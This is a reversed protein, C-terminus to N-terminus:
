HPEFSGSPRNHLFWIFRTHNTEVSTDPRLLWFYPVSRSFRVTVGSSPLVPMVIRFPNLSLSPSPSCASEMVIM